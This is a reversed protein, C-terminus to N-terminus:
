WCGAERFAAERRGVPEYAIPTLQAAAAHVALALAWFRDAHGRETREADFRVNGAATTFKKVSHIDERIDRDAPIRILRDEFRRRLTIALDEKVAGTFTVAEVRSGFREVAEEALQAGIGTSDICARRIAGEGAGGELSPFINKHPSETGPGQQPAFGRLSGPQPM